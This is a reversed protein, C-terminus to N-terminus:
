EFGWFYHCGKPMEEETEKILEKIKRRGDDEAESEEPTFMVDSKHVDATVTVKEM